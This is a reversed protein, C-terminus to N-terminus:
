QQATDASNTHEQVAREQDPGLGTRRRAENKRRRRMRTVNRVVVPCSAAVHSSRRFRLLGEVRHAGLSEIRGDHQGSLKPEDPGDFFGEDSDGEDHDVDLPSLPIEAIRSTDQNTEARAGVHQTSPEDDPEMPGTEFTVSTSTKTTSQRPRPEEKSSSMSSQSTYHPGGHPARTDIDVATIAPTTSCGHLANDPVVPPSSESVLDSSQGVGLIRSTEPQRLGHWDSGRALREAPRADHRHRHHSHRHARRSRQARLLHQRAQQLLQETSLESLAHYDQEILPLQDPILPQTTPQTLPGNDLLPPPSGERAAAAAAPEGMTVGALSTRGRRIRVGSTQHDDVVPDLSFTSPQIALSSHSPSSSSFADPPHHRASPVARNTIFVIWPAGQALLTPTSALAALQPKHAQQPNALTPPCDSRYKVPNATRTRSCRTRAPAPSCVTQRTRSLSEPLQLSRAALGRKKTEPTKTRAEGVRLPSHTPTSDLRVEAVHMM